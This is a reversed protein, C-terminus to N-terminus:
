DYSELTHAEPFDRSIKEMALTLANDAEDMCKIAKEIFSATEEQGDKRAFDAWKKYESSHSRNHEIWHPLLVYLKELETKSIMESMKTVRLCM